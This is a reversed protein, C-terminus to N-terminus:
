LDRTVVCTMSPLHLPHAMHVQHLQRHLYNLGNLLQLSIKALQREDRLGTAKNKEVLDAVSGADMFELVTYVKAEEYFANYLSVLWPCHTHSMMIRMETVVQDRKSKDLITVCKVAFAEDTRIHRARYVTGTAGSGLEELTELDTISMDDVTATADEPSIIRSVGVPILGSRNINFDEVQFTGSQSLMFSDDMKRPGTGGADEAPEDDSDFGSLVPSM